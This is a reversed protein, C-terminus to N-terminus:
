SLGRAAREYVNMFAPGLAGIGRFVVPDVGQTSLNDRNLNSQNLNALGSIGGINPSVGANQAAVSANTTPEPYDYTPLEKPPALYNIGITTGIRKGATMTAQKALEAAKQPTLNKFANPDYSGYDQGAYYGSAGAM